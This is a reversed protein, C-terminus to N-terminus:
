SIISAKLSIMTPNSIQTKQSVSSREPSENASTSKTKKAKYPTPTLQRTIVKNRETFKKTAHVSNPHSSSPQIAQKLRKEPPPLINSPKKIKTNILPIDRLNESM